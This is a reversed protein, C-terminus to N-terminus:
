SPLSQCNQRDVGRTFDVEAAAVVVVTNTDNVTLDDDAMSQCHEARDAASDTEISESNWDNADATSATVQRRWRKCTVVAM